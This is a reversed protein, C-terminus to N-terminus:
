RLSAKILSILMQSCESVNPSPKYRTYGEKVAWADTGSPSEAVSRHVDSLEPAWRFQRAQQDLNYGSYSPTAPQQEAYSQCEKRRETETLEQFLSSKTWFNRLPTTYLVKRLDVEPVMPVNICYLEVGDAWNQCLHNVLEVSLKCASQIVELPQPDKSAFSLAIANKRCLAAELAGGVTGSSLNYISTTNRGHNPGSVVLDVPGRHQLLHFLGLQTCSAPTGDVLMWEENDAVANPLYSTAKLTRGVIHAKGIWSRAADPIVVSVTHGAAKLASVFPLV